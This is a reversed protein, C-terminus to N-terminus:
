APDSVRFFPIKIPDCPAPVRDKKKLTFGLAMIGLLM